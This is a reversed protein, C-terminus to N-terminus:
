AMIPVTINIMQEKVIKPQVWSRQSKKWGLESLVADLTNAEILEDIFLQVAEDFRQQAEKITRGSTSLDFAPAWAIFRKGQKTIQVSLQFKTMLSKM